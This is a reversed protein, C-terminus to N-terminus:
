PKAANTPRPGAQHIRPEWTVYSPEEHLFADPEPAARLLDAQRAAAWLLDIRYPVPLTGAPLPAWHRFTDPTAFPTDTPLAASPVRRLGQTADLLHWSDRRADAIFTVAPGTWAAALLALSSYTWMPRPNLVQWTRLATATTRIGLISGPGECFVFAQVAALNVGLREIGAFVSVGAEEASAEWRAGDPGVLGVQVTSASADLILVSGSSVLSHLSPMPPLDPISALIAAAIRSDRRIAPITGVLITAKNAARRPSDEDNVPSLRARAHVIRDM